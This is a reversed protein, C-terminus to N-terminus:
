CIRRSIFYNKKSITKIRLFTKKSLKKDEDIDKEIKDLMKDLQTQLIM